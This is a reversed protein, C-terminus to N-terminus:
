RILTISGALKFLRLDYPNVYRIVYYYTGNNVSNGQFTGDWYINQHKSTFLNVGWKNFINMEFDNIPCKIYTKFIDNIGDGNPTMVNPTNDYCDCDFFKVETTDMVFGCNNAVEVFYLGARDVVFISDVSGDQWTYSSGYNYANLILQKNLCIMTDDVFNLTPPNLGDIILSDRTSCDNKTVDVWYTGAQYITFTSLKSNDQWLYTAGITNVNLKISDGKCLNTDNGLNVAPSPKYNVVISDRTACGNVTVDVWYIGAQSITQTARTSNNNWLYSGGTTRVNLQLTENACLNTDNGLNVTPPTFYNVTISDRTTCGNVTVDVWYIGTQTVTFTSLTSNDQWLYTAGSISAILTFPSNDCFTTDNGLNVVPSPKYNVVISDRTACGNVTVDVWYIGAQSITQTARTSNNNWLYSGGTTRVNLQLTENACLNTDNGLNVTPPTFYNVTISDRITCGNVTVDVWYIGTQTVSYTPSTSNDQWLYTANSKFVNIIYPQSKCFSTDIIKRTRNGYEWTDSFSNNSNGRGAVIYGFNGISFTASASRKDNNFGLISSWTNTVPDYSYYDDLTINTNIRFGGGIIIKGNAVFEQVHYRGVGPLDSMKLWLNNMPDYRWFDKFDVNHNHGFGIYIYNGLSIATGGTRSSVPFGTISTWTNTLPNFEYFESYPGGNQTGGSFVYGKGNFSAGATGRGGLGPYNALKIWTNSISNYKYFDKFTTTGDYGLGAYGDNGISFGIGNRRVAAPFNAKQTWSDSIPDYEWLKNYTNQNDYGFCVYGKQGISFSASNRKELGPFAAKSCWSQAILNQYIISSVLLFLFLKRNIM